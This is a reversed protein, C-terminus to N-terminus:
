LGLKRLTVRRVRVRLARSTFTALAACHERWRWHRLVCATSAQTESQGLRAIGGRKLRIEFGSLGLALGVGLAKTHAEKLCWLRYFHEAREADPLAALARSEAPSFFRQAIELPAPQCVYELDFGVRAGNAIACGVLGDTHSLSFSISARELQPALEPRGGPEQIFSLAAPELGSHIALAGRLVAHSLVYHRRANACLQADARVREAADLHSWAREVEAPAVAAPECLYVHVNLPASTERSVASGPLTDVDLRASHRRSVIRTQSPCSQRNGTASEGRLHYTYGLRVPVAITDDDRM